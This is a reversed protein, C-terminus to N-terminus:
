KMHMGGMGPIAHDGDAGQAGIGGVAFDVNAKGAQALELTAKFHDGQMLQKTLGVFMVHYGGPTLEVAQGPM